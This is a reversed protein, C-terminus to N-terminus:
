RQALTSKKVPVSGPPAADPEATPVSVDPHVLLLDILAGAQYGTLQRNGLGYMYGILLFPNNKGDKEVREAFEDYLQDFEKKLM